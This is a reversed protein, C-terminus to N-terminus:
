EAVLAESTETDSGYDHHESSISQTDLHSSATGIFSSHTSSTGGIFSSHTSAGGIFSSHVSQSNVRSSMVGGRLEWSLVTKRPGYNNTYVSSCYKAISTFNETNKCERLGESVKMLKQERATVARSPASPKTKYLAPVSSVADSYPPLCGLLVVSAHSLFPRLYLIMKHDRFSPRIRPTLM